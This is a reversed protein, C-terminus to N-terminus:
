FPKPELLEPIYSLHYLARKAHSLYPSRHGVEGDSQGKKPKENQKQQPITMNTTKQICVKKRLLRSGAEILGICFGAYM